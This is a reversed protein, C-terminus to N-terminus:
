DVSESVYHVEEYFAGSYPDLRYISEGSSLRPVEVAQLFTGDSKYLELTEGAKLNFNIGPKGLADIRTYNSCYVTVSEGPALRMSPLSSARGEEAKDTLFYYKLNLEGTGFNELVIYDGLGRSKIATIVLGAEPDPSTVCEIGVFGDEIM